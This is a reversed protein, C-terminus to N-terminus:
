RYGEKLFDVAKFLRIGLKVPLRCALLVDLFNNRSAHSDIEETCM